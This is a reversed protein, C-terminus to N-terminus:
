VGGCYHRCCSKTTYKFNPGQREAPGTTSNVTNRNQSTSVPAFMSTTRQGFYPEM